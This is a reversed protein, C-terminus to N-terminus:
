FSLLPPSLPFFSKMKKLQNLIKYVQKIQLMQSFLGPKKKKDITCGSTFSLHSYELTQILCKRQLDITRNFHLHSLLHHVGMMYLLASEMAAISKISM